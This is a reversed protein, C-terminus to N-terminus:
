NSVYLRGECVGVVFFCIRKLEVGDRQYNQCMMCAARSFRVQSLIAKNSSVKFPFTM